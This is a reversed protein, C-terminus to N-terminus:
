IDGLIASVERSSELRLEDTTTQRELEHKCKQVLEKVDLDLDLRKARNLREMALLYEGDDFSKKAREFLIQAKNKNDLAQQSKEDPSTIPLEQHEYAYTRWIGTLTMAWSALSAWFSSPRQAASTYTQSDKNADRSDARESHSLQSIQSSYIASDKAM